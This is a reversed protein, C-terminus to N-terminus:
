QLASGMRVRLRVGGGHRQKPKGGATLVHMMQHIRDYQDIDEALQGAALVRTRRFLGWPGGVPRLPQAGNSQVHFEISFTSTDLWRDCTFRFRILKAGSSTKYVNSGQPHFTVRQREIVRSAGPALKFSLGEVLRDEIGNALAEVM